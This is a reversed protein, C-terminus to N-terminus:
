SVRRRFCVASAARWPRERRRSHTTLRSPSVSSICTERKGVVISLTDVTLFLSNYPDITMNSFDPDELRIAEIRGDV